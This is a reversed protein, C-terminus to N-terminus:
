GYKEKYEEDSLIVRVDDGPLCAQLEEITMKAYGKFGNRLMELLGLSYREQTKVIDYEVCEHYDEVLYDEVEMRTVEECEDEFVILSEEAEYDESIEGCKPCQYHVEEHWGKGTDDDVMVPKDFPGDNGVFGCHTCHLRM